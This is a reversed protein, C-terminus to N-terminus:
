NKGSLARSVAEGISLIGVFGDYLPLREAKAYKKCFRRVFAELTKGDGAERAKSFESFDRWKMSKSDVDVRENVQKLYEALSEFATRIVAGADEISLEGVPDVGRLDVDYEWEHVLKAVYLGATEADGKQFASQFAFFDELTFNDPALKM